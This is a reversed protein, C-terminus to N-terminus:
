MSQLKWSSPLLKRNYCYAHLRASSLANIDLTNAFPTPLAIRYELQIGIRLYESLPTGLHTDSSFYMTNPLLNMTKM